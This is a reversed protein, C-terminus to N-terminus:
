GRMGKSPLAKFDRKKRTRLSLSVQIDRKAREKGVGETLDRRLPLSPASKETKVARKFNNSPVKQGFNGVKPAHLPHSPKKATKGQNKQM